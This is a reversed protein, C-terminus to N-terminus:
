LPRENEPGKRQESSQHRHNHTDHTPPIERRVLYTITLRTLAEVLEPDPDEMPVYGAAFMLRIRDEGEVELGTICNQVFDRTPPREGNMVRCVHTRDVYILKSLKNQSLGGSIAGLAGAFNRTSM